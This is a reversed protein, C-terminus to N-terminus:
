DKVLWTVAQQLSSFIPMERRSFSKIEASVEDLLISAGIWAAKKVFPKDFVASEKLARIAEPDFSAGAFNVLLLVSGRPRVM